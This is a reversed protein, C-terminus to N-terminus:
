DITLFTLRPGAQRRGSLRLRKRRRERLGLGESTSKESPAPTAPETPPSVLVKRRAPRRSRTDAERAPERRRHRSKIRKPLPIRM